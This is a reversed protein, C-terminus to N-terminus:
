KKRKLKAALFVFSCALLYNMSLSAAITIIGNLIYKDTVVRQTPQTWGYITMPINFLQPLPHILWTQYTLNPQGAVGSISYDMMYATGYWITLPILLTLLIKLLTPRFFAPKEM